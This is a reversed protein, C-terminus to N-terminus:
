RFLQLVSQAAQASLSLATTSLSQRTQLMLMNAGEENTDALTLKDAGETLTNVMNTSFNQRVTIISLNGSLKSSESSLTTAAADLEAISANIDAESAWAAATIGLGAASADFGSVTLSAGEFKVVLDDDNLLNKGKYGSDEALETLQTRITNYQERLSILEQSATQLAGTSTTFTYRSPDLPYIDYNGRNYDIAATLGTARNIKTVSLVDGTSTAAYRYDGWSHEAEYDNIADALNALTDSVSGGSDFKYEYDDPDNIGAAIYTPCNGIHIEDDMQFNRSFTMNFTNEQEADVLTMNAAGGGVVGAASFDGAAADAAAGSVTKSLNLFGNSVTASFATDGWAYDNIAQALEEMDATNNGSINFSQGGTAGTTATFTVGGIVVQDPENPPVIELSATVTFSADTETFDLPSNDAALFKSVTLTNTGENYVASFGYLEGEGAWNFDTIANALNHATANMDGAVLRFTQPDDPDAMAMFGLFWGEGNHELGVVEGEAADTLSITGKAYGIASIDNLWIAGTVPGAPSASEASLASQAIGKAQEIMSSIASIGKDAATVTQVAQGMTDKLGEILSARSTLSRATFFSVPNDIASNVKKGTSLREQTRDLLHVTGQLSLLNSRMGSTLSVDNIAM